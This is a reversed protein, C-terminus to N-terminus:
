RDGAIKIIEQTVEDSWTGKFYYGRDDVYLKARPKDVYLYDFPVKNIHLWDITVNFDQTRRATLIEIKFGAQRVKSLAEIAGEKVRCSMFYEIIQEPTMDNRFEMDTECITDDLDFVIIKLNDRDESWFPM